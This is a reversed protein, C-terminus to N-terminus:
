LQNNKPQILDLYKQAIIDVSFKDNLKVKYDNPNESAKKILDSLAKVNNVLCLSKQPLIERPGSDCDTSIVPTGLALSELIVMGLGEFESSFVMLKANKIFPYPNPKFGVFIVKNNLGLKNVLEKCKKQLPGQGLLILSKKVNSLHYARILIDHRKATNFKGVHILYNTHTPMFQDSQQKIFNIDVPNYIHCVDLETNIIKKFDELVGKSVCICRIRSYIKNMLNKDRAFSTIEKSMTSHIISYTNLKSRCLIRDVPLLNSLVLNPIGCNKIIFSDLLPAIVQGRISKPIWRYHQKFIHINFKYNSKLEIFKKFLIVHVDHGKNIFEDALTIAVREAGNGKLDPLIIVIKRKIKM